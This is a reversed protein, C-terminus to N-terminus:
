PTGHANFAEWKEHTGEAMHTIKVHVASFKENKPPLLCKKFTVDDGERPVFEGDVSCMLMVYDCKDNKSM